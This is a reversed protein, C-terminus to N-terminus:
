HLSVPRILARGSDFLREIDRQPASMSFRLQNGEPKLNLSLLLNTLGGPATGNSKVMDAFFRAVDALAKADEATRTTAEGAIVVQDGFRMGFAVDTIGQLVAGSLASRMNRSAGPLAGAFRSPSGNTLVWVHHSASLTEIRTLLAGAGNGPAGQKDILKKVDASRGTVFIGDLFVAATDSRGDGLLKHGQYATVAGHNAVLETWLAENFRGKAAVIGTGQLAAAPGKAEGQDGLTDAVILIEELDRRPDFGTLRFVREFRSDSASMRELLFRGFSSDRIASVQIGTVMAADPTALRALAPDLAWAPAFLSGAM